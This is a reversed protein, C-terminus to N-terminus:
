IDWERMASQCAERVSVGRQLEDVFTGAVEYKLGSATALEILSILEDANELMMDDM